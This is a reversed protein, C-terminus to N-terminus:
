LKKEFETRLRKSEEERVQSSLQHIIAESLEVKKGCHPCVIDKM